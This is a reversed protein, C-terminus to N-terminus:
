VGTDGGCTEYLLVWGQVPAEEQVGVRPEKGILNKIHCRHLPIKLTPTQFTYQKSICSRRWLSEARIEGVLVQVVADM